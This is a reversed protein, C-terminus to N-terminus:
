NAVFLLDFTKFAYILYIHTIDRVKHTINGKDKKVPHQANDLRHMKDTVCEVLSNVYKYVLINQGSTFPITGYLSVVSTFM